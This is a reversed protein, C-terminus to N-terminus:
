STGPWRHRVWRDVLTRIETFGSGQSTLYLIKFARKGRFPLYAQVQPTDLVRTRPGRDVRVTDIATPAPAARSYEYEQAADNKIQAALGSWLWCSGVLRVDERPQHTM